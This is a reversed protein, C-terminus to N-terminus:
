HRFQMYTINADLSTTVREGFLPTSHFDGRLGAPGGVGELVVAPSVTACDRMRDLSDTLWLFSVEVFVGRATCCFAGHWVFFHGRGTVSSYRKM